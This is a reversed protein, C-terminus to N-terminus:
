IFNVEKPGFSKVIQKFIHKRFQILKNTHQISNQFVALYELAPIHHNGVPFFIYM